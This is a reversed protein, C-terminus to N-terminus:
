SSCSRRRPHAWDEPPNAARGNRRSLFLRVHIDEAALVAEPETRFAALKRQVEALAIGEVEIV